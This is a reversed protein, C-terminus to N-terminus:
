RVVVGANGLRGWDREFQARTWTVRGAYPDNLILKTPNESTGVFGILTRAHEGKWADIHKGDSTTWDDEYGNGYVGWVVVPNGASLEATLKPVSWDTFAEAPRWASAALAIPGWYVGYGTTNQRGNIDGVFEVYPDGWIDGQRHAADVPVRAMIADESVSVGHGALAMKLAAAECSLPRDQYDIAISLVTTEDLTQFTITKETDSPLGELSKIGANLHVRYVTSYALPQTPKVILTQGDWRRTTEISPVFSVASEASSQDVDQDFSLRIESGVQVGASGDAPVSGALKVAGITSFSYEADELLSGGVHTEAGKALRVVYTTAYALPSSPHFTLIRGDESLRLSGEVPPDVLFREELTSEKMPESFGLLISATVAVRDGSPEVSALTPPPAISFDGEYVLAPDSRSVVRNTSEDRAVFSRDIKLHYRTGQALPEVPSIAFSTKSDSLQIIADINPDFTARWEVSQDSPRDLTVDIRTKPSLANTGAEPSVSQIEPLALTTFSARYSSTESFPLLGIIGELSITYVTDPDFPRSPHFRLTRFAHRGLWSDEYTWEGELIPEITPILDRRVVPKSFHLVLDTHLAVPQVFEPSRATVSPAWLLYWLAGASIVLVAALWTLWRRYPFHHKM